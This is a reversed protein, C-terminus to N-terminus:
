GEGMWRKQEATLITYRVDGQEATGAACEANWVIRIRNGMDDEFLYHGKEGATWFCLKKYCDMGNGVSSGLGGGAALNLAVCGGSRVFVPIRDERCVIDYFHEGELPIDQARKHGEGAIEYEWFSYWEGRPLYIRRIKCDPALIPAILMDGLLFCDECEYVNKDLPYDLVLHRMMPLGSRASQLMQQYLYPLLNMRLNFQWRMRDILDDDQYLLSMNWPSRDNIGKTVALIESFQGGVPESHWQMVPAFVAMQVAREYLKKDPMEGAFGAIDFSWFPVGSLGISLGAALIHKFEEWTSMQDGAWQIPYQQQGLYGARSFLVRKEGAFRSYAKVYEASFYNRLEKGSRGASDIVDDSLIFEGGDTKFGDVGMELLYKRKNFWWEAADPNSFDPLLSGAFWHGEPITYPSGDTNRICLGHEVAYNWDQEAISSYENESMKKLVPIQWLILHINKEQLQRVMEEPQKWEGHDNFRYFTAEDSWAELVMVSHPIQHKELEALQEKVDEETHWRNASMWPGLSWKPITRVNGTLQSFDRVLEAPEGGLFYIKPFKGETDAIIEIQIEERFRFQVVTLTDVFVGLGNETFFFPMPCYSVSGQNCFKEFVETSLSKGKQNVSDFREGMGYVACCSHQITLTCRGQERLISAAALRGGNQNRVDFPTVNENLNVTTLIAMAVEKM